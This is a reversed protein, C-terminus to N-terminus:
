APENSAEVCSLAHAVLKEAISKFHLEKVAYNRGAEGMAFREDPSMAKLKLIAECLQEANDPEITEGAGAEKVPNFSSNIAYIVPKGSALYDMLKNPTPGYKFLPLDRLGMFAVDIEQYFGMIVPKQVYSHFHLNQLHLEKARSVMESKLPGEGVMFVVVDSVGRDQLLKCAAVVSPLPNALGHSGGYGVIFKGAAKCERVWDVLPHNLEVEGVSGVEKLEIGNPLYLYRDRTLGHKYMYQDASHWLSIVRDCKKFARRELWAFLFSLPHMKSLSGLEILMLPWLDRVELFVPIKFYKKLSLVNLVIFPHPSSAIVLDPKGYAVELVRRHKYLMRSFALMNWLRAPSNGEYKPVKLWVFPVNEVRKFTLDGDIQPPTTYLHHYSASIVSAEHGMKNLHRALFFHRYEMGLELNGAYHNIIWIKLSRM